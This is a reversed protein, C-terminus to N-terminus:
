YYYALSFIGLVFELRNFKGFILVGLKGAQELNSINRFIAPVAVFDVICTMALWSSFLYEVLHAPKDCTLGTPSANTSCPHSTPTLM